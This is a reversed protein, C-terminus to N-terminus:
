KLSAAERMKQDARFLTKAASRTMGCLMMEDIDRANGDIMQGAAWMLQDYEARTLTVTISGRPPVAFHERLHDIAARTTGASQLGENCDANASNILRDITEYDKRTLM